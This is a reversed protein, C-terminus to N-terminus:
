SMRKGRMLVKLKDIDKNLNKFQAQMQNSVSSAKQADELNDSTVQGLKSIAVSLEEIQRSQDKSASSIQNILVVAEDAKQTSFSLSERAKQSLEVGKSVRTNSEDLMTNISGAAESARLALSRVEDAVVAFGAGAEGARAAEVAANLALLNTHFAIEDILKLTSATENNTEEINGIARILDEMAKNSEMMVENTEGMITDAVDANEVNKGTMDLIESLFSETQKLSASQLSANDSLSHSSESSLNAANEVRQASGSLNVIINKVPNSVLRRMVIFIILSVIALLILSGASTAYQLRKITTNLSALSYTLTLIGGIEGKKWTPHCRICDPVIMQPGYVSITTDEEFIIQNKTASLQALLEDSLQADTQLDNSSLDIKGFRDYLNVGVVGKIKNQDQLLKEFNKMQGRELSGKVGDQFSNFLTQVSDMYTHRMEKEVFRNVLAVSLVLSILLVFMVTFNVRYTVSFRSLSKPQM